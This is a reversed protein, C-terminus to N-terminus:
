FSTKHADHFSLRRKTKRPVGLEEAWLLRRLRFLPQQKQTPRATDRWCGRNVFGSMPGPSVPFSTDLKLVVSDLLPPKSSVPETSSVCVIRLIFCINLKATTILESEFLMSSSDLNQKWYFLLTVLNYQFLSCHTIKQYPDWLLPKISSLKFM